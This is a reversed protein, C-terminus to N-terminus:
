VPIRNLEEAFHCAVDVGNLTRLVPVESTCREQAYRCRDAFVCSPSGAPLDRMAPLSVSEPSITDRRKQHNDASLTDGHLLQTYPHLPREVIDRVPGAEMVRGRYLVLVRDAIYRVVDLDHSVFLYSLEYQVQLDKLINLVQAQVSLDLATVPEDCVLLETPVIIARAIAARQRQGGSLMGPFADFTGAGLGTQDLLDDVRKRPNVDRPDRRKVEDILCKGIPRAPNFSSYPDQFVMQVQQQPTRKRPPVHTIDVGNLMITGGSVSALGALSRGITSKGSGSEGVLAVTEGRKVQFSVHDVARLPHAKRGRSFVVELGRVELLPTTLDSV